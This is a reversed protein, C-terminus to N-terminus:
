IAGGQEVVTDVMDLIHYLEDAVDSTLLITELDFLEELKSQIVKIPSLNGFKAEQGLNTISYNQHNPKFVINAMM